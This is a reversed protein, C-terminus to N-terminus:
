YTMVMKPNIFFKGHGRCFMSAYFPLHECCTVFRYNRPRESPTNARFVVPIKSEKPKIHNLDYYKSIQSNPRPTSELIFRYYDELDSTVIGSYECGSISEMKYIALGGFASYVSVWEGKEDLTFPTSGCEPWWPDGLLEPGLPYRQDRFAYRDWYLENENLFYGPSAIGNASVCDWEISSKITELIAEIPWNCTFDLDVMLLYDYNSYERVVSLVRNRARAIKETRCLPLERKSLTESIFIVCSNNRAWNKYISVTKDTSNNEYIIAKYDAFKKGLREINKITNKAAFDVNKGVGCILIRSEAPDMSHVNFFLLLSSFIFLSLYSRRSFTM